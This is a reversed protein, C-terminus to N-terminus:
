WLCLSLSLSLSFCFCFCVCVCFGAWVRLALGFVASGDHDTAASARSSKAATPRVSARM